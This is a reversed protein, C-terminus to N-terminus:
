QCKCNPAGAFNSSSFCHMKKLTGESRGCLDGVDLAKCASDSHFSHCKKLDVAEAAARGRCEVTTKQSSEITIKEGPKIKIKAAFSASSVFVFIFLLKWKM